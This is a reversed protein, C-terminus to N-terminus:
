NFQRWSELDQLQPAFEGERSYIYWRDDHFKDVKVKSSNKGFCSFSVKAM